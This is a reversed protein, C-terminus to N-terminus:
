FIESYIELWTVLYHGGNREKDNLCRYKVQMQTIIVTINPQRQKRTTIMTVGNFHGNAVPAKKNMDKDHQQM